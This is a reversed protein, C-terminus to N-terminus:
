VESMQVAAKFTADKYIGNSRQINKECYTLIIPLKVHQQQRRLYNRM